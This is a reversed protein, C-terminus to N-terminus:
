QVIAGAAARGRTRVAHALVAAVVAELLASLLAGLDNLLVLDLREGAPMFVVRMASSTMPPSRAGSAMRRPASAAQEGLPRTRIAVSRRTRTPSSVTILCPRRSRPPPGPNSM